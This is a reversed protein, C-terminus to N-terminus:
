LLRQLAVVTRHQQVQQPPHPHQLRRPRAWLLQPPCLAVLPGWQVAAHVQHRAQRVM